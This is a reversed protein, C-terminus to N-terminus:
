IHILSLNMDLGQLLEKCNISGNRKLFEEFLVNAKDYTIGTKQSLDNAGRGFELGLAMLAGTVAGCTMQHRAM